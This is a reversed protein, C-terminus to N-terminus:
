VIAIEYKQSTMIIKSFKNLLFMKKIAKRLSFLQLDLQIPIFAFRNHRILAQGFSTLKENTL